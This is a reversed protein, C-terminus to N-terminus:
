RKRVGMKGGLRYFTGVSESGTFTITFRILTATEPFPIPDTKLGTTTYKLAEPVTVDYYVGGSVGSLTPDPKGIKYWKSTSWYYNHEPTIILNDETGKVYESSVYFVNSGLTPCTIQTKDASISCSATPENPVVNVGINAVTIAWASNAVILFLLTILLSKISKKM